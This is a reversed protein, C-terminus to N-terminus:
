PRRPLASRRRSLNAALKVPASFGRNLSPVPRADIGTFVFTEAPKTLVLVGREIASGDSRALPLERGTADLLAVALPIVLADKSPQGPTPPQTQAIELTCTKAATDYSATVTVEPTGAQRYWRM